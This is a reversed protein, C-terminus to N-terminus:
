ASGLQWLNIMHPTLQTYIYTHTRLPTIVAFCMEILKVINETEKRSDGVDFLDDVVTLLISNKCLAVRAESPDRPLMTTASLLLCILPMVRAYELEELRAEKM